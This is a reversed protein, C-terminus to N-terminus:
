FINLQILINIELPSSIASLNIITSDGAFAFVILFNKPPLVFTTADMPCMLSKGFDLNPTSSFVNSGCYIFM